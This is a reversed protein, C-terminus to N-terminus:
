LAGAPDGRDRGRLVPFQDYALFESGGLDIFKKLYDKEM